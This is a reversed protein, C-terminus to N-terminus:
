VSVCGFACVREDCHETARGSACYYRSHYYTNLTIQSLDADSGFARLYSPDIHATAAISGMAIM